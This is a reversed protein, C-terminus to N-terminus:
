RTGEYRQQRDLHQGTTSTDTVLRVPVSTTCVHEGGALTALRQVHVGLLRSFAETEAECLQPFQAAIHQVPCHGQCLQIGAHAGVPRASAAYGDKNLAEALAEVRAAPDDGSADLVPGYRRELEQVRMQAFREIADAGGLESVFQLASSALDEYANDLTAQGSPTAVLHRAPRGRGRLAAPPEHVAIRGDDLLAAVHRRVAAQTLDMREALDGVTVPGTEAVLRLVHKRTSDDDVVPAAAPRSLSTDNSM